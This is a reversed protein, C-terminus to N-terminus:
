LNFLIIRKVPINECAKLRNELSVNYNHILTNFSPIGM